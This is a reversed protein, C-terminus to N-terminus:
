SLRVVLTTIDDQQTVSYSYGKKELYLSIDNMAQNNDFILSVFHNNSLSKIKKENLLSQKVIILSMPCRLARLDITKM